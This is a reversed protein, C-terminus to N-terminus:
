NMNANLGDPCIVFKLCQSIRGLAVLGVKLLKRCSYLVVLTWKQSSCHLVHQEYELGLKFIGKCTFCQTTRHLTRMHRKMTSNQTFKSDCVPCVFSKGEHVQKHLALGSESAYGKGCLTCPYPMEQGHFTSMHAKFSRTDSMVESCMPCSISTVLSSIHSYNMSYPLVNASMNYLSDSSHSASVDSQFHLSSHYTGGFSELHQGRPKKLSQESIYVFHQTESIQGATLQIAFM